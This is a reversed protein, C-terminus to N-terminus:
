REEKPWRDAPTVLMGVGAVPALYGAKTLERHAHASTELAVGFRQSIQARSPAPDGPEYQGARIESEIIRAIQLYRPVGSYPDLDAPM